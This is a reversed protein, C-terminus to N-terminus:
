EKKKAKQPLAEAPTAGKHVQIVASSFEPLRSPAQDVTCIPVIHTFIHVSLICGVTKKLLVYIYFARSLVWFVLFRACVCVVLISLDSDHIYTKGVIIKKVGKLNDHM